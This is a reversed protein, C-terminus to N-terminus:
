KKRWVDMTVGDCDTVSFWYGANAPSEGGGGEDAIEEITAESTRVPEPAPPRKPLPIETGEPPTRPLPKNADAPKADRLAQLVRERDDDLSSKAGTIKPTDRPVGEEQRRKDVDIGAKSARNYRVEALDNRGRAEAERGRQYEKEAREERTM